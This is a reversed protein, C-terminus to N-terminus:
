DESFNEKLWTQFDAPRWRQHRVTARSLDHCKLVEGKERSWELLIVQKWIQQFTKCIYQLTRVFYAIFHNPFDANLIWEIDFFCFQIGCRVSQKLFDFIPPAAHKNSLVTTLYSKMLSFSGQNKLTITCFFNISLLSLFHLLWVLILLINQYIKYSSINKVM